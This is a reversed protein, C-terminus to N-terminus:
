FDSLVKEPRLGAVKNFFSESVPTEQSNQSIKLFVKKKCIVEPHTSRFAQRSNKPSNLTIYFLDNIKLM